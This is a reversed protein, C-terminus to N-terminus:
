GSIAKGTKTFTLPPADVAVALIDSWYGMKYVDSPFREELDYYWECNKKLDDLPRDNLNKRAQRSERPAKPHAEVPLAYIIYGADILNRLLSVPLDCRETIKEGTSLEGLLDIGKPWYESLIYPFRRESIARTLGAYVSPEFGQTDIKILFPITGPKLKEFVIDDMRLSKVQVTKKNKSTKEQEETQDKEKVMNWMDFNGVHDGTGGYMQFDLVADNSSSAANNYINILSQIDSPQQNVETTVREFNAPSPEVCHAEFGYKAAQLCQQANFMGVEMVALRKEKNIDQKMIESGEWLIDDWVKAAGLQKETISKELVYKLSLKKSNTMKKAQLFPSLWSFDLSILANAQLFSFIAFVLVGMVMVWKYKNKQYPKMRTDRSSMENRNYTQVGHGKSTDDTFGKHQRQAKRLYVM